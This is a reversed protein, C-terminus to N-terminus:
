VPSFIWRQSKGVSNSRHCARMVAAAVPKREVAQLCMGALGDNRIQGTPFDFVWRQSPSKPTCVILCPEGSWEDKSHWPLGSVCLVRGWMGGGLDKVLAPRLYGPDGGTANFAPTAGHIRWHRTEQDTARTATCKGLSVTPYDGISRARDATLCQDPFRATAIKYTISQGYRPVFTPEVVNPGRDALLQEFLQADAPSRPGLARYLHAGVGGAPAPRRAALM